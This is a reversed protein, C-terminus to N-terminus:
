FTATMLFMSFISPSAKPSGCSTLGSPVRKLEETETAATKEMSNIRRNLFQSHPKVPLDVIIQEMSTTIDAKPRIQWRPVRLSKKHFTHLLADGQARGAPGLSSKPLKSDQKKGLYMVPGSPSPLLHANRQGQRRGITLRRM